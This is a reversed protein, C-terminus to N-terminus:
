RRYSLAIVGTRELDRLVKNLSQRRVGLLAALSAQPLEVTTGNAEDLLLSSVQHRLDKGSLQLIRREAHVLRGAVSSLWRRALAPRSAILWEFDSAPLRLARVRDIAHASYPLPMALILSIDGDVEGPHVIKLITRRRGDRRSLEVRGERVIWVAESTAGQAFLATGPLLEEHVLRNGLEALDTESLPAWDGRGVCRALWAAERVIDDARGRATPLIGMGLVVGSPWGHKGCTRPSVPSGVAPWRDDSLRDGRVVLAVVVGYMMHDVLIGAPTM